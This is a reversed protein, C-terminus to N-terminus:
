ICEAGGRVRTARTVIQRAIVFGALCVLLRRWDSGAVFYFGALAVSLRLLLSLIFWVAPQRATLGRNVTWWLGGFFVIGLVLGGSLAYAMMVVDNM